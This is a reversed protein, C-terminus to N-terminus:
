KGRSCVFFSTTVSAVFVWLWFPQGAEKWPSEDAHLLIAQEIDLFMEDELPGVTCGAERITEDLVGTSLQLAFVEIFFERIHARLMRMRLALFVIAGALRPGILRWKGFAVKEWIPDAPAVHHAARTLHGCSCTSAHLLHGQNAMAHPFHVAVM